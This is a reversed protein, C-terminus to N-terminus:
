RQDKKKPIYAPGRVNVKAGRSATGEDAGMYIEEDDVMIRCIIQHGPESKDFQEGNAWAFVTDSVNAYYSGSLVENVAGFGTQGTNGKAVGYSWSLARTNILQIEFKVLVTAPRPECGVLLSLLIVGYLCSKLFKGYWVKKMNGGGM